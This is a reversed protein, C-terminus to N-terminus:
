GHFPSVNKIRSLVRDSFHSKALVSAALVPDTPSLCAGIIMATPVTTRFVLYAFLATVAWSFTMVPGLMAAVSKWRRHCYLMQPEIGVVFCQVGVIIRTVEQLINDDLDWVRSTTINLVAPGFTIGILVDLPPECLHLGNRIFQSFLPYLILFSSLIM